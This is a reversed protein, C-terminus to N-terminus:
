FTCAYLSRLSEPHKQKKLVTVYPLTDPSVEDNMLRHRRVRSTQWQASPNVVETMNIISVPELRMKGIEDTVADVMELAKMIDINVSQLYCSLPGTHVFIQKFLLATALFEKSHMITTIGAADARQKVQYTPDDKVHELTELISDFRKMLVKLCSERANWRVTNVRKLSCITLGHESQVREFLSHIKTSQNFLTYLTELTTFLTVVATSATASDSLVLNLIHGYCHVFTVHPEIRERIITQLGRYCRIM